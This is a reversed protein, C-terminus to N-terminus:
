HLMYKGLERTTNGLEVELDIIKQTPNVHVINPNKREQEDMKNRNKKM